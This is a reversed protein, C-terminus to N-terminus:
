DENSDLKNLRSKAHKAAGAALIVLGAIAFGSLLATDNKTRRDMVVDDTGAVATFGDNQATEAKAYMTPTAAGAFSAFVIYLGILLTKSTLARM